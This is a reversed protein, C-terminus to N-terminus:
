RRNNRFYNEDPVSMILSQFDIDNLTKPLLYFCNIDIAMKRLTRTTCSIRDMGSCIVETRSKQTPTRLSWVKTKTKLRDTYVITRKSSSM